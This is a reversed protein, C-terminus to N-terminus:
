WNGMLKAKGTKKYGLMRRVELTGDKLLKSRRSWYEAEQLLCNVLRPGSEKESMLKEVVQDAGKWASAIIDTYQDSIDENVRVVFGAKEMMGVLEDTTVPYPKVPEGEKWKRYDERAVVSEASLCYAVLLFMGEPKLWEFILEIISKKDQITLLTEKALARDFRRDFEKIEGPKYEFFEHKSQVGAMTSMEKAAEILKASEDYGLVFVGFEKTLTRAPGGLGCGLDLLTEKKGMALMKSLAIIQEPGGPGCFGKGWIYQSIDIRDEDWPDFILEEKPVAKESAKKAVASRAKPKEEPEDEGVADLYAKRVDDQDFGEWWAKLKLKVPTNKKTAGM